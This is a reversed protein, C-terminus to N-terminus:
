IEYREPRDGFTVRVILAIIKYGSERLHKVIKRAGLFIDAIFQAKRPYTLTLIKGEMEEYRDWATDDLPMANAGIQTWVPEPYIIAAIARETEILRVHPDPGAPITIQGEETGDEFQHWSGDLWRPDTFLSRLAPSPGAEPKRAREIEDFAKGLARQKHRQWGLKAAESRRQKDLRKCRRTEAAKAAAERRKKVRVSEAARRKEWGKKAAESRRERAELAAIAERSLFKGGPGRRRKPRKEVRVTPPKEALEALRRRRVRWGKRAAASRKKSVQLEEWARRSIYHGSDDRYVRRGKAKKKVKSRRAAM